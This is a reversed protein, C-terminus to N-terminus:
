PVGGHEAAPAAVAVSVDRLRRLYIAAVWWESGDRMRRVQYALGERSRPRWSLIEVEEGDRLDNSLLAGSGDIMPVGPRLAGPPPTWNIFAHAGIGM